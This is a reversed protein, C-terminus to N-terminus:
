SSARAVSGPLWGPNRARIRTGPRRPIRAPRRRPTRTPHRIAVQRCPRARCSYADLKYASAAAVSGGQSRTRSASIARQGTWTVLGLRLDPQMLGQATRGAMVIGMGRQRVAQRRQLHWPGPRVPLARARAGPMGPACPMADVCEKGAVERGQGPTAGLRRPAPITAPGAGAAPVRARHNAARPRAFRQALRLVFAALGDRRMVVQQALLRRASDASSRARMAQCAAMSASSTSPAM